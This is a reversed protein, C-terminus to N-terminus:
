GASLAAEASTRAQGGAHPAGEGSAILNRLSTNIYYGWGESCAGYCEYEPTLGVHTFVVTTRGDEESIDFHITTDKWETKDETFSFYNDVVLWSVRQGPILETVRIKCRHLDQFHYDFEAGVRDAGGEIEASWWARPDNIADFADKPSQDVSFSTTFDQGSM